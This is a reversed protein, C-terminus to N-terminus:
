ENEISIGSSSNSVWVRKAIIVTVLTLAGVVAEILLANVGLDDENIPTIFRVRVINAKYKTDCIRTLFIGKGIETRNYNVAM